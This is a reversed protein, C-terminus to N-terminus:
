KCDIRGLRGDSFRPHRESPQGQSSSLDPPLPVCAYLAYKSTYKLDDTVDTGGNPTKKLKLLDEVDGAANSGIVEGALAALKQRIQV